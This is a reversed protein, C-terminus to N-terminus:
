SKKVLLSPQLCNIEITTNGQLRSRFFGTALESWTLLFVLLVLGVALLRQERTKLKRLALEVCLGTVLLLLGMVFFDRGDWAVEDTFQMAIAPILLLLPIAVLIAALRKNPATMM